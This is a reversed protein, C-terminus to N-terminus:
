NTTAGGFGDWVWIKLLQAWHKLIAEGLSVTVGGEYLDIDAVRVTTHVEGREANDLIAGDVDGLWFGLIQDGSRLLQFYGGRGVVSCVGWIDGASDVIAIRILSLFDGGGTANICTTWIEEMAVQWDVRLGIIRWLAVGAHTPHAVTVFIAATTHHFTPLTVIM